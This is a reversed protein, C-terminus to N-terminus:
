LVISSIIVHKFAILQEKLVQNDAQQKATSKIRSSNVLIIVAAIIGIIFPIVYYHLLSIIM